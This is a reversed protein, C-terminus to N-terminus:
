PKAFCSCSGLPRGGRALFLAVAHQWGCLLNSALLTWPLVSPALVRLTAFEETTPLCRWCPALMVSRLTIAAASCKRPWASRRRRGAPSKAVDYPALIGTNTFVRPLRRDRHPELEIVDAGSFDLILKTSARLARGGLDIGDGMGGWEWAGARAGPVALM